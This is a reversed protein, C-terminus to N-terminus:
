SGITGGVNWMNEEITCVPVGKGNVRVTGEALMLKRL